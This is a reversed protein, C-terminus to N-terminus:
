ERKLSDRIRDIKYSFITNKTKRNIIDAVRQRSLLALIVVFSISYYKYIYNRLRMHVTTSVM